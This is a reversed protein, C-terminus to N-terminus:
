VPQDQLNPTVITILDSQPATKLSIIHDKINQSKMM